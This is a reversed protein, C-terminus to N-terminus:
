IPSPYVVAQLQRAHLVACADISTPFSYPLFEFMVKWKGEQEVHRASLARCYQFPPKCATFVDPHTKQRM